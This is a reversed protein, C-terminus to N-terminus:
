KETTLFGANAWIGCDDEVGDGAGDMVLRLQRAGEPIEIEVFHVPVQLSDDELMEGAAIAAERLRRTSRIAPSQYIPLDDAYLYFGISGLPGAGDDLGMVAVFRKYEPKLDYFLESHARVSLGKEYTQGGLTLLTGLLSRDIGEKGDWRIAVRQAPELDSLYVDPAPLNPLPKEARIVYDKHFSFPLRLIEGVPRDEHFARAALIGGRDVQLGTDAIPSSATPESGDLTYHVAGGGPSELRVVSRNSWIPHLPSVVVPAWGKSDHLAGPEIVIMGWPALAPIEISNVKGEALVRDERGPQKLTLKLPRDGFLRLPNLALMFPQPEDRWDILHLVLPADPKGPLARLLSFVDQAGLIVPPHDLYHDDPLQDRRSTQYGAAHVLAYDDFLEANDRVFKYFPAFDKEEGFYRESGM